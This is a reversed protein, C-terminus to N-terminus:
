LCVSHQAERGPRRRPLVAAWLGPGRRRGGRRHPICVAREPRGARSSLGPPAHCWSRLPLRAPAQRSRQSEAAAPGRLVSKGRRRPQSVDKEVPTEKRSRSLSNCVNKGSRSTVAVRTEFGCSCVYVFACACTDACAFWVCSVSCVKWTLNVWPPARWIHALLSSIHSVKSFM